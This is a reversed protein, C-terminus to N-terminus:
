STVDKEHAKWKEFGEIVEPLTHDGYATRIDIYDEGSSRLPAAALRLCDIGWAHAKVYKELIGKCLTADTGSIHLHGCVGEGAGGLRERSPNSNNYQRGCTKCIWIYRNM